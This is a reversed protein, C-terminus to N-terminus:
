LSIKEATRLVPQMTGSWIFIKAYADNDAKDVSIETSDDTKLNVNNINLLRGNGDYVAAYVKCIAYYKDLKEDPTVAFKYKTDATTDTRTIVATIMPLSMPTITGDSCHIFANILCDNEIGIAIQHWEDKSGNYYVDTLNGCRRFAYNGIETITNPITVSKLKLCGELAYNGIYIVGNEIVSTEIEQRRFYWPTFGDSYGNFYNTMYGAGNITLTNSDDMVWSVDSGCSGWGYYTGDKFHVDFEFNSIYIERFDAFYGNYYMDKLHSCNWFVNHSISTVSDPITISTLGYCDSFAYDDISTVSDPIIYAGSIGKEAAKILTTKDKNFLVNNEATYNPNAEAVTISALNDCVSFVSEGISIVSDSIMVSILNDCGIFARDGISTVGNEIIVSKIKDNNDFPSYYPHPTGTYNTMNGTGSIILEGDDYLIWTVNDGCSGYGMVTTDACYITAKSYCENYSGVSIKKFNEFSGNYHVEKLGICDFFAREGINTVSNQITISTLGSCYAFARNGISTVGNPIIYDGSKGEPFKILENGAKNFLVGNLSAYNENNEDVNIETLSNCNEFVLYNDGINTVSAPITISILNRCEYFAGRMISTVGSDIEVSTISNRSNYWPAYPLWSNDNYKMEGTGSISLKGNGYLIWILTEGCKGHEKIEIGECYLTANNFKENGSSISIKTFSEFSGNYHVDKLGICGSFASGGISTISSPITISTLNKYNNFAFYNIITVGDPIVLNEVLEGNLYLNAGNYLPNSTTWYFSVNCWAVIDTIYVEKIEGCDFFANFGSSTISDPITISTLGTCGSFTGECIDTIGDPIIVSNLSTCNSFAYTGISMVSNPITIGTLDTCGSFASEGISTVSNPIIYTGSVGQEAAKILKTKNKSFLVNSEATFNPNNEAVSINELSPCLVFPNYEMNILGSGINVSTLDSCDQFANAEIGTVSDPIDISTLSTCRFFALFGISTVSNPITISTLDTCGSFAGEGISTVGDPIEVEGGSGVYQTLVGNEDIIFDSDAAYVNAAFLGLCLSLVFIWITMRKKM